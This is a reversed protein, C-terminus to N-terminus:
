AVDAMVVEQRDEPQLQLTMWISLSDKPQNDLWIKLQPRQFSVWQSMNENAMNRAIDMSTAADVGSISASTAHKRVSNVM